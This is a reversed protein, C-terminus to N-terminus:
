KSAKRGESVRQKSDAEVPRKGKEKEVKALYARLIAENRKTTAKPM